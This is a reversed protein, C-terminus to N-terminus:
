FGAEHQLMTTKYFNRTTRDAAAECLFEKTSVKNIRLLSAKRETSNDDKLSQREETLHWRMFSKSCIKNISFFRTSQKKTFDNNLDTFM